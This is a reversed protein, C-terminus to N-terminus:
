AAQATIGAADLMDYIGIAFGRRPDNVFVHTVAGVISGDQLIPSGSMGQVIGGAGSSLAADTVTLLAHTQGGESYVRDIEVDYERAEHGALTSVISARGTKIEGPRLLRGGQVAGLHGFIGAPTNKEVSGIREASAGGCLEGPTGPVGPSVSVIEAASIWGERLPVSRGSSEDNVSHGLAGFLGSRPEVFTITGIGSVGDRLWLGLLWQKTESLAPRVRLRQAAGGRRVEVEAEGGGIAAAAAILDEASRIPAGDVSVILDGVAFGADQAPSVPGDATQVECFGSVIVGDACIEIGVAQGGVLLEEAWAACPLMTLALLVGLAATIRKKM